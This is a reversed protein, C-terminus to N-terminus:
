KPQISKFDRGSVLFQSWHGESRMPLMQDAAVPNAALCREAGLRRMARSVLETNSRNTEHVAGALRSLLGEPGVAIGRALNAGSEEVGNGVLDLGARFRDGFNASLLRAQWGGAEFALPTASGALQPQKSGVDALPGQRAARTVSPTFPTLKM